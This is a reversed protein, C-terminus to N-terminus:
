QTYGGMGNESIKEIIKNAILKISSNFFFHNGPCKCFECQPKFYWQWESMKSFPTDEESYFIISNIDLMVSEKFEYRHLLNYDKKFIPMYIDWFRKNSILQSPIGGLGIIRDKLEKDNSIGNKQIESKCHPPEHAALFFCLPKEECRNKLVEFAVLSGMSYGLVSYPITHNRKLKIIKQIDEVMDDFSIYEEEKRRNGHGAYEIAIVEFEQPLYKELCKFFTANGGAYTLCFIQIKIM